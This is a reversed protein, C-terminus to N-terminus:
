WIMDLKIYVCVRARACTLIERFCCSCHCRGCHCHYIAFPHFGFGFYACGSMGYSHTHTHTNMVNLNSSGFNDLWVVKRLHIQLLNPCNCPDVVDVAVSNSVIAFGLPNLIACVYPCVTVSEFGFIVGSINQLIM